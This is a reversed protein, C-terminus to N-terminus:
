NQSSGDTSHITSSSRRNVTALSVLATHTEFAPDNVALEDVQQKPKSNQSEHLDEKEEINTGLM